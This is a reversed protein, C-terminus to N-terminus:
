KEARADVIVKAGDDGVRQNLAAFEQSGVRGILGFNRLSSEFGDEFKLRQDALEGALFDGVRGHVVARGREGFGHQHGLAEGAAVGHQDRAANMRFIALHQLSVRLVESDFNLFDLERRRALDISVRERPPHSPDHGCDYNLRWIEEAYDLIDRRKRFDCVRRARQEDDSDGFGNREADDPRGGFGIDDRHFALAESDRRTVAAWVHAYDGCAVFEDALKGAAEGALSGVGFAM